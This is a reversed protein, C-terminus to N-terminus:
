QSKSPESVPTAFEYVVQASLCLQCFPCTCVACHEQFGPAPGLLSAQLAGAHCHHYLGYNRWREHAGLDLNEVKNECLKDNMVQKVGVRLNSIAYGSGKRPFKRCNFMLFGSVCSLWVTSPSSSSTNPPINGTTAFERISIM